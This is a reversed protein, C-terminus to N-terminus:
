GCRAVGLLWWWRAMGIRLSGLVFRCDAVSTVNTLQGNRQLIPQCLQRVPRMADQWQLNVRFGITSALQKLVVQKIGGAELWIDERCDEWSDIVV